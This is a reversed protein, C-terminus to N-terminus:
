LSINLSALLELMREAARQGADKKSIGDARTARPQERQELLVGIQNRKHRQCESGRRTKGVDKRAIWLRHICQKLRTEKARQWVLGLELGVQLQRESLRRGVLIQEVADADEALLLHEQDAGADQRARHGGLLRALRVQAPTAELLDRGRVVLTIGHRLDDVVVCFGYTWNGHRDLIAPDAATTPAGSRPGALVDEWAEVGDGLAM